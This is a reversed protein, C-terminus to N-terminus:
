VLELARAILAYRTYIRARLDDPWSGRDLHDLLEQLVLAFHSEHGHDLTPPATLRWGVDSPVCSLGPFRQQWAAIAACLRPELDSQGVPELHIEAKYNTNPGQRVHVNCGTGRLRM